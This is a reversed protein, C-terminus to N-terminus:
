FLLYKNENSKGISKWSSLALYFYYHTFPTSYLNSEAALIFDIVFFYLFMPSFENYKFPIVLDDHECARDFGPYAPHLAIHVAM